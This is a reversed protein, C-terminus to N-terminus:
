GSANGDAMMTEILDCFRLSRDFRKKAWDPIQVFFPKVADKDGEIARHIASKQLKPYHRGIVARARELFAQSVLGRPIGFMDELVWPIESLMIQLHEGGHDAWPPPVPHIRPRGVPRKVKAKKHRKRVPTKKPEEVVAPISGITLESM